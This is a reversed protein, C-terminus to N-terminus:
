SAPRLAGFYKGAFSTMGGPNVYTFKDYRIPVGTEYADIVTVVNTAKNTSSVMAVHGPSGPSGDGGEFYVLDGPLLNAIGAPVSPGAGSPFQTETTRPISIGAAAYAAQCLGSCDYGAPGTGGWIYPKGLQKKAFALAIQAAQEGGTSQPATPSTTGSGVAATAGGTTPEPLGTLPQMITITIDPEAIDVREMESVLWNGNYPGLTTLEICAGLGPTWSDAKCTITMTTLPANVDYTGDITDIGGSFETPQMVPSVSTLYTYPGFYVAGFYEFCVWQIESAIRQLCTWSDELPLDTTGRSLQEKSNTDYGISKLYSPPPQVFTAGSIQSVLLKAFETRSMQNPAITIAGTATRLAAVVYAEFTATIVSQEKDVEVLQFQDGILGSLSIISKQAFIGSQLIARTPDNLTLTFTSAQSISLDVQATVLANQVNIDLSEGNVIIDGNAVNSAFGLPPPTILAGPSVTSGSGSSTGAAPNNAVAGDYQSLANENIINVLDVGANALIVSESAGANYAKANYHGAAWPSKGLAIAQALRGSAARVSDYYPLNLTEIYADLGYLKTPYSLVKGGGSVGAFNNGHVFASSAGETTEDAFQALIVSTLVGTASSATRADSLYDTFFSM